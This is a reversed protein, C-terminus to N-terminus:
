LLTLNAPAQVSENGLYDEIQFLFYTHQLAIDKFFKQLSMLQM